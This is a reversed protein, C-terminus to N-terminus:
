RMRTFAEPLFKGKKRDVAIWSMDSSGVVLNIDALVLVVRFINWHLMVPMTCVTGYRIGPITISTEAM